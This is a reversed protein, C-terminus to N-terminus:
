IVHMNVIFFQVLIHTGTLEILIGYFKKERFFFNTFSKKFILYKPEFDVFCYPEYRNKKFSGLYLM